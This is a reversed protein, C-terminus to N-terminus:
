GPARVARYMSLTGFLTRTRQTEEVSRFGADEIFAPLRGRVNDTTTAFGDFLQVSLYALRMLLGGARGWDMIHLEGGPRLLAHARMLARRKTDTALHHFVLSSVVRDFSGPEFALEDAMAEQLEVHLGARALKQRGIALVKPDGDIGIVEAAPCSAALMATLTATGCGLDLVRHGPRLAVQEVLRRKLRQEPLFARLLPDFFPTLWDFRLAPIYNPSSPPM